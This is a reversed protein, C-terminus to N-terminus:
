NISSMKDVSLIDYGHKSKLEVIGFFVLGNLSSNLLKAGVFEPVNVLCMIPSAVGDGGRRSM